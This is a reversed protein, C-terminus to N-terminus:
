PLLIQCGVPTHDAVKAAEDLIFSDLVRPIPLDESKMKKVPEDSSELPKGDCRYQGLHAAMSSSTLVYDLRLGRNLPRNQAARESFYSFVGAATPHIARFTDVMDAEKLLQTFSEREQPTLGACKKLATLGTYQDAFDKEALGDPFDPREHMNWMDQVRHCCNLDGIVVVPKKRGERQGIIYETLAKDWCQKKSRDTRYALRELTQGSNPVYVAVLTIDALEITLLRGEQSIIPDDGQGEGMGRRVSVAEPDEIAGQRMIVAVGSYGKKVTSCAWHYSTYEEPLIGKLQAEIESVDEEKLKHENLCLVDPMEKVVVAKLAKHLEEKALLSRLGAVNISLLKLIKGASDGLERPTNSRQLRTNKSLSKAAAACMKPNANSASAADSAASKNKAENAKGKAKANAKPPTSGAAGGKASAKAAAPRARKTRPTEEPEGATAARARKPPM